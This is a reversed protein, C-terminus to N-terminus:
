KVFYIGDDYDRTHISGAPPPVVSCLRLNDYFVESADNAYLNLAELRRSCVIGDCWNKTVLM